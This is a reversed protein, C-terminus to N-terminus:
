VTISITLQKLGRFVEQGELKMPDIWEDVSSISWLSDIEKKSLGVVM